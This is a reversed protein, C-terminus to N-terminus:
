SLGQTLRAIYAEWADWEADTMDQWDSRRSVLFLASIILAKDRETLPVEELVVNDVALFFDRRM